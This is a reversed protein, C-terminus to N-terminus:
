IPATSIPMQGVGSMHLVNWATLCVDVIGCPQGVQHGVSQDSGAEHGVLRGLLHAIQESGALLKHALAATMGLADLLGQFIGVDLEIRHNGVDQAKAAATDDMGQDVALGSWLGQCRQSVPADLGRRRFQLRRQAASYCRMVKMSLSCRSWMSAKSAAMARMSLSTSALRSGKRAAMSVSLVMGPTLPREASM